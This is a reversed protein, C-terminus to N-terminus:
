LGRAIQAAAALWARRSPESLADLRLWTAALAPDYPVTVAARALGNFGAAITAADKAERDAQSVIVM